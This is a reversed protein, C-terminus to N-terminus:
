FIQLIVYRGPEVYITNNVNPLYVWYEERCYVGNGKNFYTKINKNSSKSSEFIANWDNIDQIIYAKNDDDNSNCNVCAADISYDYGKFPKTSFWM